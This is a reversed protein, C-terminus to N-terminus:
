KYAQLFAVLYRWVREVSPIYMRETPSHPNEITTGLSIMEMNGYIAGIIGCELGAHIMEVKPEKGFLTKYTEVSRQLLASKPEPQWAPYGESNEVEAGALLGIASIRATLEDRRSM